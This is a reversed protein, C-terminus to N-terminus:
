RLSSLDISGDIIILKRVRIKLTAKTGMGIASELFIRGHQTKALIKATNLGHGLIGSDDEHNIAESKGSSSGSGEEVM